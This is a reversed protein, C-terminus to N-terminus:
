NEYEVHIKIYSATPLFCVRKINEQAMVENQRIYLNEFLQDPCYIMGDSWPILLNIIPDGWPEFASIDLGTILSMDRHNICQNLGTNASGKYNRRVEIEFTRDDIENYCKLHVFEKPYYSALSDELKRVRDDRALDIKEGSFLIQHKM